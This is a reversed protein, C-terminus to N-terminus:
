FITCIFFNTVTTCPHNFMPFCWWQDILIFSPGPSCRRQRLLPRFCLLSNPSVFRGPVSPLSVQFNELDLWALNWFNQSGAPSTHALGPTMEILHTAPVCYFHHKSLETHHHHATYISAPRVLSGPSGSALHWM